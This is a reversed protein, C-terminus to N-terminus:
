KINENLIRLANGSTILEVESHSFGRTLLGSVLRDYCTCDFIDSMSIDIGDFDSGLAISEVGAISGIHVFHDILKDISCDDISDAIFRPYFTLGVVGRKQSLAKLQEDSLNRSNNCIFKANAHSVIPPKTAYELVDFFSRTSIHALDLLMGLAEMRNIVERGLGSLGREGDEEHSDALQNQYNWTLSLSRVGLRYMIDLMLPDGDLAEGGEIALIAAIRGQDNLTQIDSYLNVHGIKHENDIINHHYCAIMELTERLGRYRKMSCVAFFQGRIGG